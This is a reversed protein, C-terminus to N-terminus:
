FRLNILADEATMRRVGELWGVDKFGDVWELLDRKDDCEVRM